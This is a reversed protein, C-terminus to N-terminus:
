MLHHASYLFKNSFKFGPAVLSPEFKIRCFSYYYDECFAPKFCCIIRVSKYYTIFRYFETFLLIGPRLRESQPCFM